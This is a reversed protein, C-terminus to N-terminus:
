GPCQREVLLAYWEVCKGPHDPNQWPDQPVRVAQNVTYAFQPGKRDQSIKYYGSTGIDCTSHLFVRRVRIPITIDEGTDKDKSDIYTTFADVQYSVGTPSSNSYETSVHETTTTTM